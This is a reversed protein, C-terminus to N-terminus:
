EHELNNFHKKLGVLIDPHVPWLEGISDSEYLWSM